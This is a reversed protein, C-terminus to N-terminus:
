QRVEFPTCSPCLFFGAIATPCLQGPGEERRGKAPRGVPESEKLEGFAMRGRRGM